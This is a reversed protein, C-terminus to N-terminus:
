NLREVIKGDECRYQNGDPFSIALWREDAVEEGIRPDSKGVPAEAVVETAPPPVPNKRPRGPGRRVPQSM